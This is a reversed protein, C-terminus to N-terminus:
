ILITAITVVTTIIKIIISHKSSHHHNKKNVHHHSQKQLHQRQQKQREQKTTTAPTQTATKLRLTTTIKTISSFTTTTIVETLTTTKIKLNNNIHNIYKLKSLLKSFYYKRKNISVDKNNALAQSHNVRM